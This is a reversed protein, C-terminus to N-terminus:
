FFWKFNISYKEMFDKEIINSIAFNKNFNYQTQIKVFESNSSNYPNLKYGVLTSNKLKGFDFDFNINPVTNVYPYETQANGDLMFSATINNNIKYSKGISGNFFTNYKNSSKQDIIKTGIKIKWSLLNGEDFDVQSTKIKKIRILDFSDLFLKNDNIKYGLSFDSVVLEDYKLNNYGISEIGFVSFNFKNYFHINSNYAIGTSFIIPKNNKAPSARKKINAKLEKQIPLSLRKILLKNKIDKLSKNEPENIIMYKYYTLLFDLINIQNKQSFSKELNDLSSLGKKLTEDIKIQEKKSFIKFQEYLKKQMSPVYTVDKLRNSEELFNFTEVPIYWTDSVKNVIDKNLVLELLQSVRYGCNKDLFFYRFKKGVIEWLHLLLLKQEKNSLNLKYDWIDRFENNSYVLDQTYFYKDSFGAEYGGFIGKFIYAIIPEKQPVLAGYNISLDFLNNENTSNKSNLKLFSHGFTSAPNGLYGSVLMVSTSTTNNLVKWSSLKTCRKDITKYNPFQIYQSLWFYRAPFKCRPSNNFDKKDILEYNNITAILENKKSFNLNSSLFFDKTTVESKSNKVYLLREWTKHNSIEKLTQNNKINYKIQTAYLSTSFLITFILQYIIRM